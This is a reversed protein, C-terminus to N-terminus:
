IKPNFNKDLYMMITQYLVDVNQRQNLPLFQSLDKKFSDQDFQRLRQKFKILSFEEDFSAFKARIVEPNVKTNLTLLLWLDYIDRQKKRHMIARLKEALIEEKSMVLILNTPTFPYNPAKPISPQFNIVKNRFSFDLRVFIPQKLATTARIRWSVGALSNLQRFEVKYLNAFQGIFIKFKSTFSKQTLHVTFDLDESFRSGGYILRIATGGKFILHKSFLQGYLQDLFILQTYERAVVVPHIKLQRSFQHLQELTLM